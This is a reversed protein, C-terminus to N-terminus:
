RMRHRAITEEISVFLLVAAFVSMGGAVLYQYNNGILSLM